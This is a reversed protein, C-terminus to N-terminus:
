REPRMGKFSESLSRIDAIDKSRTENIETERKASYEFKEMQILKFVFIAYM